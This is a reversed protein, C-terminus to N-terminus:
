ETLGPQGYRWKAQDADIAAGQEPTLHRVRHTLCFEEYAAQPLILDVSLDPDGMSFDFEVFGDSRLQRLRVYCTSADTSRPFALVAM